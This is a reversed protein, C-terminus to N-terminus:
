PVPDFKELLSRRHLTEQHDFALRPAKRIAADCSCTYADAPALM